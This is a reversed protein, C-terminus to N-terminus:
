PISKRVSGDGSAGMGGTEHADASRADELEKSGRKAGWGGKGITEQARVQSGDPHAPRVAAQPTDAREPRPTLRPRPASGLRALRDGVEREEEFGFVAAVFRDPRVLVFRGRYPGLAADLKGDVGAVGIEGNDSRPLRDDLRVAVLRPDLLEWLAHSLRDTAHDAEVALLSWGPGLVEDFPLQRGEHTLVRPQPLLTGALEHGDGPDAVVMGDRYRPPPKYRMETLYRRVPPVRVAAALAADRLSARTRGTTMMLRGLRVSLRITAEAHPRREREYTDLLKEGAKGHLVAALKWALNAADRLGTNLGQAAFPPMLHAADGLLLVRNKRWREATLAHFGYVASRVIQAAHVEARHPALLRRVFPVSAATQPDEGPLLMFEYRCRGDRGPVIVTPRRPDGHHMAFREDHPDDVLDVVIWPQAFTSGAMRIGLASRVPSRGGDCGLMYSARVSRESGDSSRLRAVVGEEDQAFGVLTSAFEVRARPFRRLGELLMREFEPQDIPNKVPHGSPPAAPGHAYALLQGRAGFYKTGTGPVVVRSALGLLGAGQLTRMAEDDISVARPETVAGPRREAVLVDIGAQGLLNATMLGTPGAGVILVEVDTM